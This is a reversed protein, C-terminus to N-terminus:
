NNEGFLSKFKEEIRKRRKETEDQDITVQIIDGEKAEMPLAIRPIEVMQMDELEVIAYDGEFRDITFRM